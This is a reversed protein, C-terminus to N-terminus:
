FERQTVKSLFDAPDVSIVNEAPLITHEGEGKTCIVCEYDEDVDATYFRVGEEFGKDHRDTFGEGTYKGYSEHICWMHIFRRMAKEPELVKLEEYEENTFFRRAVDLGHFKVDHEQIDCGIESRSFACVTYIGSHSANFYLEGVGTLYPKGKETYSFRYGSPEPYIGNEMLGYSILLEVGLSRAKDARFRYKDTRIRRSDSVYYYAKMYLAEDDLQKTNLVYLRIDDNM